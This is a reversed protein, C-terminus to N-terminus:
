WVGWVLLLGWLICFGSCCFEFKCCVIEGFCYLLWCWGLLGLCSLTLGFCVFGLSCIVQFGLYESIYGYVWTLVRPLLSDSFVTNCWCGVFRLIALKGCIMFHLGTGWSFKGLLVLFGFALILHLCVSVVLLLLGPVQLGSVLLVLFDFDLFM